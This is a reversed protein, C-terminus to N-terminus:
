SLHRDNMLTAFLVLLCLMWPISKGWIMSSLRITWLKQEISTIHMEAVLKKLQTYTQMGSM